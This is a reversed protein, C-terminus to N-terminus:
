RDQGPYSVGAWIRLTAPGGTFSDVVFFIADDGRMEITAFRDATTVSLSDGEFWQEAGTAGAIRSRFWPTVTAATFPTGGVLADLDFYVHLFDGGLLDYGQETVTPDATPAATADLVARDAPALGQKISRIRTM